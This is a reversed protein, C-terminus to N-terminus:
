SKTSASNQDAKLKRNSTHPEGFILDRISEANRIDNFYSNLYHERHDIEERTFPTKMLENIKLIFDESSKAVICLEELGSGEVMEPTVLCHRGQYLTNVLKIKFGTNQFSPLLHIHADRILTTLTQDAPNQILEANPTKNIKQVVSPGPNRGTIILKQQIFPLISDLLFDVAM